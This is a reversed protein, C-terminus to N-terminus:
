RLTPVSIEEEEKVPAETRRRSFLGALSARLGGWPTRKVALSVGVMLAVMAVSAALVQWLMLRQKYNMFWRGYTLEIHVWYVALSTTGLQRVWSWGSSFYETWLFAGAGLLLSIGLKCAVLAPSNLWFDSHAYISYPLNSFYQGSLLLAFGAVAAWQMVRNWAGRQVFPIASGAALGFALYAGWPFISFSDANAVFYNRLPPPVGATDLGALIPSLAALAVGAAAALRVRRLGESLALLALLAATAGMSNLVDVKLLDTWPSYPQSFSWTQLRFLIALLFLYGARRLAASVRQLPPLYERRNMGLGYTVGTLFLFIAAAQGGFFQSFIFPADNREEPRLFAHFTHGQLMVIAALGRLWDLFAIRSSAAPARFSDHAL